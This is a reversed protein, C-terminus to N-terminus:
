AKVTSMGSRNYIVVDSSDSCGADVVRGIFLTHDVCVIEQDVECDLYGASGQIIPAGTVATKTPVGSLKDVDRGSVSGCREALEMQDPAAINVSFAGSKHILETTFHDSSVAVMVRPDDWSTRAVWAATMANTHGEAASGIIYVGYTMLSLADSFDTSM